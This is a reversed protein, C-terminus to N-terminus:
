GFCFGECEDSEELPVIAEDADGEVGDNEQENEDVEELANM